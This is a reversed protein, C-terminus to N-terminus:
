VTQQIRKSMPKYTETRNKATKTIRAHPLSLHGARQDVKPRV